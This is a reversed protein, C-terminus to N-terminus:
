ITWKRLQGSGRLEELAREANISSEVRGQGLRSHSKHPMEQRDPPDPAPLAAAIQRQGQDDGPQEIRRGLQCGRPHQIGGGGAM